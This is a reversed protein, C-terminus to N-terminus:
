KRGFTETTRDPWHLQYLDLYDTQLRQLSQDLAETLNKRNLSTQGNRIHTPRKPDRVPGAVKSTLFLSSRRQTKAIWNGIMTETRGQTEAKPPVPYMEAADVVNVGYDLAMDIQAHA